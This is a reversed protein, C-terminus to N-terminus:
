TDSGNIFIPMGKARAINPKHRTKEAATPLICSLAIEVAKWASNVNFAEKLKPDVINHIDGREVIPIVWELIHINKEPTRSIAHQGTILEFLIIGFSYIDDPDVYGLPGATLTSIHSDIHSGFARYLGFDAIKAHMSQDLLINSPKLDSLHQHLNGNAMYEYILAKSEGEGCYGILSVLNRHHVIVLLQAESRFEKYGQASSLSAVLPTVFNKKCSDSVCLDPNDAM